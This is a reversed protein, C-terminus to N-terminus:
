IQRGAAAGNAKFGEIRSIRTEHEGLQEEAKGIREGHGKVRETLEGWSVALAQKTDQNSKKADRSMLIPVVVAALCGILTCLLQISDKLEHTM